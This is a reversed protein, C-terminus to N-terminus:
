FVLYLCLIKMNECKQKKFYRHKTWYNRKLLIKKKINRIQTVSIKRTVYIRLKWVKFCCKSGGGRWLLDVSRILRALFECSIHQSEQLWFHLFM